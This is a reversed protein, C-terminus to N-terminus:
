RASRLKKHDFGSAFDVTGFLDAVSHPSRIRIFEALARNIAENGSGFGGAKRAKALLRENIRIRRPM